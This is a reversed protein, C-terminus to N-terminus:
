SCLDENTEEEEVESGEDGATMDPDEVDGTCASCM